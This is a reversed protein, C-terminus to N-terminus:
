HVMFASTLAKYLLAVHLISLCSALCHSSSSLLSSPDGHLCFIVVLTRAALCFVIYVVYNMILWTLLTCCTLLFFLCQNVHCPVSGHMGQWLMISHPVPAVSAWHCYRADAKSTDCALPMGDRPSILILCDTSETNYLIKSYMFDQFSKCPRSISRWIDWSKNSTIPGFAPHLQKINESFFRSIFKSYGLFHPM